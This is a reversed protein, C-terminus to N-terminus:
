APPPTVRPRRYSVNGVGGGPGRGSASLPLLVVKKEGEGSRPPPRPSPDKLGAIIRGDGGAPVARNGESGKRGRRGGRGSAPRDRRASNPTPTSQRVEVIKRGGLVAMPRRRRM